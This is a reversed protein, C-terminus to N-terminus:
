ADIGCLEFAKNAITTGTPRGSASLRFCGYFAGEGVSSLQATSGAAAVYDLALCYAFARKGVSTNNELEVHRLAGCAYFAYNGIYTVGSGVTVSRIQARYRFWPATGASFDAMVGTAGQSSVELVLTDGSLSWTVGGGCSGSADASSAASVTVTCVATFTRSGDKSDTVTATIKAEGVALATVMGKDDVSAVDPADSSWAITWDTADSPEVTAILEQSGGVALSLSAKGLTVGTVPVSVTVPCTATQEGAKATITTSGGGVATVLGNVDVTAVSENSSSWEVKDTCDDPTVTATLQQTGGKELTLAMQDLSISEAPVSVTVTCEATLEQGHDLVSCVLTATGAKVGTVVAKKSDNRDPEVRAIENGGTSASDFYWSVNSAEAGDPALSATVTATKGKEVTLETPDLTVGTTQTYVTVPYEASEYEDVTTATIAAEGKAVGTVKGTQDVTAVTEDSSKWTVSKDVAGDPTVTATLEVSEGAAVESTAAGNPGTIAASLVVFQLVSEGSSTTDIALAYGEDSVIQKACTAPDASGSFVSVITVPATETPATAAKVGVTGTLADTVYITGGSALYLNSNNANETVTAAGSLSVTGAAYVGGETATNDTIKGGSFTLSANTSVYVGGGNTASCGTITGGNMGFSGNQAVNVGGGNDASCGTITGGNM